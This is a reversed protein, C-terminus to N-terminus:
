HDKIMSILQGHAERLKTLEDLSQRHIEYFSDKRKLDELFEINKSSLYEVEQSLAVITTQMQQCQSTTVSTEGAEKERLKQNDRLELFANMCDIYRKKELVLERKLQFNEHLYDDFRALKDRIDVLAQQTKSDDFTALVTNSM